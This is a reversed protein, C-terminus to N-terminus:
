CMFKWGQLLKRKAGDVIQCPFGADRGREGWFIGCDLNVDFCIWIINSFISTLCQFFIYSVYLTIVFKRKIKYKEDIASNPKLIVKKIPYLLRNIGSSKCVLNNYYKSGTLIVKRKSTISEIEIIHRRSSHPTESGKQIFIEFHHHEYFQFLLLQTSSESSFRVIIEKYKRFVSLANLEQMNNRRMKVCFHSHNKKKSITRERKHRKQTEM